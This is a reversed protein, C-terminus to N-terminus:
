LKTPRVQSIANAKKKKQIKVKMDGAFVSCPKELLQNGLLRVINTSIQNHERSAGAMAFIEGAFYEHRIDSEREGILYEEPSIQHQEQAQM